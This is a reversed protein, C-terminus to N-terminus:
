RMAVPLSKSALPSSVPLPTRRARRPLLGVRQDVRQRAVQRPRDGADFLLRERLPGRRGERGRRQLLLGVALEAEGGLPRHLHRLPQKLADIDAAAIELAQNRIM